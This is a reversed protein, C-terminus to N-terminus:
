YRTLLKISNIQNNNTMLPIYPAYFMGVIGNKIIIDVVQADDPSSISLINDITKNFDIYIHTGNVTLLLEIQGNYGVKSSM